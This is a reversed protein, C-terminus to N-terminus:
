NLIQTFIDGYHREKTPLFTKMSVMIVMSIFIVCVVIALITTFVHKVYDPISKEGTDKESKEEEKEEQM